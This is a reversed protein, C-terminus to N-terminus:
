RCSFQSRSDNRWLSTMLFCWAGLEQKFGSLFDDVDVRQGFPQRCCNKPPMRSGGMIIWPVHHAVEFPEGSELILAVQRHHGGGNKPGRGM